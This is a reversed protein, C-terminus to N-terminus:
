APLAPPLLTLALRERAAAVVLQWSHYRKTPPTGPAIGAAERAAEWTKFMTVRAIREGAIEALRGPGLAMVREVLDTPTM